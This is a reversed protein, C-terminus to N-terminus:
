LLKEIHVAIRENVVAPNAKGKSMKMVAGVIRGAAKEKGEKLSQAAAPNDEIAKAVWDDIESLDTVQVLGKEEVIAAPSTGTAFMDPFITKAINGSITKKDILSILEALHAPTIKCEALSQGSDNLLSMLNNTIYNAATKGAAGASVADEFYDALAKEATLIGADYDSLDFASIFRAKRSQPNEPLEARLAEIQEETFTIPVLDPDPFYRYDHAHEKKRMSLTKEAAADYLRTEQVIQNGKGSEILNVQRKVEYELAKQVHRFSNMNKIEVKTGLEQQGLPRVSVNADCRLSGEEMNCDSVDLYSIFQKITTLYAYAEEPSRMDPESVIEVLPTGARNLDVLSGHGIDDHILKGADEELHARTIGFTKTTGNVNADIHGKGCVPLDFQSIQYAKPLDPYFYNKRDFKSFFPIECNLMLGTKVAYEVVKKNLVPLTGPMGLCVPCVNTNPEDGFHNRCRCFIKTETSLQVHVELGIVTEFEPM